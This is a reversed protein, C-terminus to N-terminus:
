AIERWTETLLDIVYQVIPNVLVISVACFVLCSMLAVIM